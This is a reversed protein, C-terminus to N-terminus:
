LMDSALEVFGTGEKSYVPLGMSSLKINIYSILKVREQPSLRNLRFGFDRKVAM